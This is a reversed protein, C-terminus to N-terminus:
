IRQRVNSTVIVMRFIAKLQRDIQRKLRFPDLSRHTKKLTDKEDKSVHDSEMLRQFPTKATGYKKYYRSNIRTKQILKLTPCFHNQMLGWQQAYLNNILEVLDQNDLRDYGLLQRVFSWNKQEVHANDNKRYPRSRTFKIRPKHDTFYRLLHHNLFEGGNDCDFGKLEFPLNTQINKIQEIVGTAGNNWTARAETWGTHIDTLTLSWIFDGALSNGCHAVTDAEMFGPQSIDWNHTRIPIQNRLLSGPKTACRGKLRTHARTKALVRDITAASVSLLQRTTKNSLKGYSGEYFPLWLPIAAVLKKSCMQDTALWIRKLARLFEPSHYLAKRGPRKTPERKRHNLLRIAHKRHYDCVACFERLIIGKEQKSAELYRPLIADLYDQKSDGGM